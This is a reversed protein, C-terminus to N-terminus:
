QIFFVVIVLLVILPLLGWLSMVSDDRRRLEERIYDAEDESLMRILYSDGPTTPSLTQADIIQSDIVWLDRGDTTQRLQNM